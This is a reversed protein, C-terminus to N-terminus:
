TAGLADAIVDLPRGLAAPHFTARLQRTTVFEEADELLRMSQSERRSRSLNLSVRRQLEHGLM